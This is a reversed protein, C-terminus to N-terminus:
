SELIKAMLKYSDDIRSMMLRQNHHMVYDPLSLMSEDNVSM